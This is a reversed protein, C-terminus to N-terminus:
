STNGEQKAVSGKTDFYVVHKLDPSVLLIPRLTKYGGEPHTYLGFVYYDKLAKTHWVSKVYYQFGRYSFVRLNRQGDYLNHPPPLKFETGFLPCFYKNDDITAIINFGLLKVTESWTTKVKM